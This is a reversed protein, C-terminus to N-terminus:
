LPIVISQSFFVVVLLGLIAAACEPLAPNGASTRLDM